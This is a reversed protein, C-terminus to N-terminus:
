HQRRTQRKPETLLIPNVWFGPLYMFPKTEIVEVDNTHTVKKAKRQKKRELFYQKYSFWDRKPTPSFSPSVFIM